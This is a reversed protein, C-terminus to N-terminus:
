GVVRCIALKGLEGSWGFVVTIRLFRLRSQIYGLHPSPSAAKGDSNDGAAATLLETPERGLLQRWAQPSWILPTSTM